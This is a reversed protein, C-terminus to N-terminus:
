IRSPLQDRAYLGSRPLECMMGRKKLRFSFFSSSAAAAALVSMWGAGASRGTVWSPASESFSLACCPSAPSLSPASPSFRACTLVVAVCSMSYGEPRLSAKRRMETKTLMNRTDSSRSIMEVAMGCIVSSKWETVSMPQYPLAYRSLLEAKWSMNPLNYVKKLMLTTNRDAMVSNSAPEARQPAAGLETAKMMPRATAPSPDAPM